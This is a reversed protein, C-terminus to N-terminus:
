VGRTPANCRPADSASTATLAVFAYCRQQKRRVELDRFREAVSAPWTLLVVFDFPNNRMM